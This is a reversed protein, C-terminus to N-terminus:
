SHKNKFVVCNFISHKNEHIRNHRAEKMESREVNHHHSEEMNDYLCRPDRKEKLKKESSYGKTHIYQVKDM